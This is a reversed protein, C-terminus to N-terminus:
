DGTLRHSVRDRECMFKEIEYDQRGPAGAVATILGQQTALLSLDRDDGYSAAFQFAGLEFGDARAALTVCAPM